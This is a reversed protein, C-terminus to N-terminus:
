QSVAQSSRKTDDDHNIAAGKEAEMEAEKAAIHLKKLEAKVISIDKMTARFHVHEKAYHYIVLCEQLQGLIKKCILIERELKEVQQSAKM